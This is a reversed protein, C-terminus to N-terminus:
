ENVQGDEEEDEEEYLGDDIDYGEQMVLRPNITYKPNEAFIQADAWTKDLNRLLPWFVMNWNESWRVRQFGNKIVDRMKELQVQQEPDEAVFGKFLGVLQIRLETADEFVLGNSKAQVLESLAEYKFACVPLGCGFMDVIKMPLDVGSTSKHLCVGLDASGLLLPYDEAALWATVIVVHELDLKSIKEEYQQKMPGKGTIVFLLKAFAKGQGKAMDDYQKAADLLLSFDEEETWSTSSVILAPRDARFTAPGNASKKETFLTQHAAISPLFSSNLSQEKVLKELKIKDMFEHIEDANLRRFSEPARDHLTTVKGRKEHIYLLDRAMARSVTLHITAKYGWVKEYIRTFKAFLSKQGLRQAVISAGYNHWDIVLHRQRLWNVIQVVFVDPAAVGFMAAYFLSWALLTAKIPAWIYYVIKPMGESVRPLERLYYAQFSPNNTLQEPLPSGKYGIIDVRYGADLASQAHLLMRPSRGIDGLVVLCFGPRGLHSVKPAKTALYGIFRFLVMFALGFMAARLDSTDLGHDM